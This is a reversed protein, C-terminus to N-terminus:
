SQATVELSGADDSRGTADGGVYSVFLEELSPRRLDFDRVTAVADIERLVAMKADDRCGVEVAGDGATVASVGDVESVRDLLRDSTQQVRVTLSVDAGAAVRLSDLSDEAVLEGARLIGVRDCVAEVQELVHSSFFVTAGRDAEERVIERMRRVGRPDLGTSPEDLVLLDPEDILAAGLALRQTMGKSYGGVRRDLADAIGVREAIADPDDDADKSDVVFQLHERGTLRDYLGIGDPLVGVRDRTDTSERPAAGLVRVQGEDPRAFDLLLDITTSKGAGNPGLFGYVEGAEVTLDLDRLAVVDGYRKTVNRVEVAPGRRDASPESDDDHSDTSM